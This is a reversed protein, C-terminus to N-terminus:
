SIQEGKEGLRRETGQQLRRINGRHQYIILAIAVLSYALYIPTLNYAITMPILLCWTAMVAMISALSMYRSNLATVALVEGGFIAAPPFIPLLTGFFTAVGRGGKFKSFIPWNHGALVALAALVQAIQWYYIIVGGVSLVGPGVIVAALLVAGAAKGIDLVITLIGAKTGVARMVNTGGIKGSGYKTIDIGKSVKGIILGFPISGLLYAIIVVAVFESIIM